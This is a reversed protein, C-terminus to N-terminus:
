LVPDPVALYDERSLPLLKRIGVLDRDQPDQREIAAEFAARVASADNGLATIFPLTPTAPATWAVVKLDKAFEDFRQMHGWSVADLAAIDAVGQAVMRASAVHAHSPVRNVFTFGAAHVHNLPAAFGSQSTPENFAFLADAFARLTVRPDDRRAVFASRYHGPPCGDLGYDPTGVLAVKDHLYLRYPMGCTQSLVLNPNEWLARLDTAESLTDPAEIGATKLEAAILVWFRDFAPALEHRTYM